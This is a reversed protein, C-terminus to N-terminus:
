TATQSTISAIAPKIISDIEYRNVVDEVADYDLVDLQLFSNFKNLLEEPPNKKDTAIVIEVGNTKQLAPVLESGIQGACGIVLIKKM